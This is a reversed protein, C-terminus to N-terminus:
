VHQSDSYLLASKAIGFVTLQRPGDRIRKSFRELHVMAEIVPIRQLLRDAFDVVGVLRLVQGDVSDIIQRESSAPAEHTLGVGYRM